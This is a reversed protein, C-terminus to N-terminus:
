ELPTGPSEGLLERKAVAFLSRKRRDFRRVRYNEEIWDSIRRGYTLGFTPTGYEQTTRDLVIIVSPASRGLEALLEAENKESLYGPVYLKHRLPNPRGSLYNLIEGEPFVVLSDHTRSERRVAGALKTCEAVVEPRASLMGETGPITIREDGRYGLTRGAFGLVVLTIVAGAAYARLRECTDVDDERDVVWRVLGAACVFLFLLPPGVYASDGIHFPRRYSLVVGAIGFGLLGASSRDRKVVALLVTALCIGPAASFLVAGGAGGLVATSALVLFLIALLPLKRLVRARSRRGIALIQLLVLAGGWMAASYLMELVGNRWDRIGSFAILFARTEAPLGTLLVHGDEIVAKWGAAAVFAAIVGGFLLLFSAATRFVARLRERSSRERLLYVSCSAAVAVLGWETRCLGCLACLAGVTLDRLVPRPSEGPRAALGIAALAFAAAHWIRYGMGLIPGGANPMFILAPVALATWLAAERRGTVTTLAFYLAALVGISGVVGAVVLTSFSSGFLKFFAAHFYPTFPGFWYVVDRYLLDGRALADPVIWERGSDIIADSWKGRSVLFLGVSALVLAASGALAFMRGRSRPRPVSRAAAVAQNM